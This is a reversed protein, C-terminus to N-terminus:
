EHNGGTEAQPPFRMAAPPHTAELPPCSSPYDGVVERVGALSLMAGKIHGAALKTEADEAGRRLALNISPLDLEGVDTTVAIDGLDSQEDLASASERVVATHSVNVANAVLTACADAAAATPATITVCDAVGLSLSRGRWGSSAIGRATSDYKMMMMVETSPADVQEVVGANLEEDPTLYLAIDGGNNVYAKQIRRDHVLANLVEDAVAGAVAAMPTVFTNRHPWTANLMRRAVPTALIPPIETLPQRLSFIESTLEDMITEFRSFAQGFAADCEGRTCWVQIILDIPGHQFHARGEGLRRGTARGSM